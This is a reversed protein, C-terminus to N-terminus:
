GKGGDKGGAAMLENELDTIRQLIESMCKTEHYAKVNQKKIKKKSMQVNWLKILPKKKEGGNTIEGVMKKAWFNTKKMGLDALNGGPKDNNVNKQDM